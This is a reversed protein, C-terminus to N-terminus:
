KINNLSTGTFFFKKPIFIFISNKAFHPKCSLFWRTSNLGDEANGKEERDIYPVIPHM